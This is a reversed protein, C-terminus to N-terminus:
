RILVMGVVDVAVMHMRLPTYSDLINRSDVHLFSLMSLVVSYM